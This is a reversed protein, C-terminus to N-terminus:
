YFLQLDLNVIIEASVALYM